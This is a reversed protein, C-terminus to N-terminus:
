SSVFLSTSLLSPVSAQVVGWDKSGIRPEELAVVQRPMFVFVAFAPVASVNRQLGVLDHVLARYPRAHQLLSCTLECTVPPHLLLHFQTNQPLPVQLM